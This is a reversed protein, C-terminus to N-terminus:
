DGTGRRGPGAGLGANQIRIMKIQFPIQRCGIFVQQPDFDGDRGGTLVLIDARKKELALPGLKAVGQVGLCIADDLNSRSLSGGLDLRGELCRDATIPDRFSRFHVGAPLGGCMVQKGHMQAFGVLAVQAAEDKAPHSAFGVGVEFRAQEEVGKVLIKDEPIEVGFLGGAGEGTNKLATRAAGVFKGRGVTEEKAERSNGGAADEAVPHATLGSVRQGGSPHQKVDGSKAPERGVELPRAKVRIAGTSKEAAEVFLADPDMDEVPGLLDM